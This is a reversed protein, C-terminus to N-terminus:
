AVISSFVMELMPSLQDSQCFEPIFTQIKKKKKEKQSKSLAESARSHFVSEPGKIQYAEAVSGDHMPMFNPDALRGKPLKKEFYKRTHVSSLCAVELPPAMKNTPSLPYLIRLQCELPKFKSEIEPMHDSHLLHFWIWVKKKVALEQMNNTTMKELKTTDRPALWFWISPRTSPYCTREKTAVQIQLPREKKCRQDM